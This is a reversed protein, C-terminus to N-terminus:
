VPWGDTATANGSAWAGTCDAATGTVGYGLVTGNTVRLLFCEGALSMSAVSFTESSSGSVDISMPAKDNTLRTATGTSVDLLWLDAHRTGVRVFAITKGDPSWVPYRDAANEHTLRPLSGPAASREWLDFTGARDSSFVVTQDDPSWSPEHDVAPATTLRVLGTGDGNVTYIDTNGHDTREFAVQGVLGSAASAPPVFLAGMALVSFAVAALRRLARM